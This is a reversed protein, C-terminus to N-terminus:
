EKHQELEKLETKVKEDWKKVADENTGAETEEKYSDTEDILKANSANYKEQFVQDPNIGFKTESLEKRLRRANLEYLNYLVQYYQLDEKTKSAPLVWSKKRDWIAYVKFKTKKLPNPKAYKAYAMCFAEGKMGSINKPQGLFDGWTLPRNSNWHLTDSKSQAILLNTNGCILLAIFLSLFYRVM